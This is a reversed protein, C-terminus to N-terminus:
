ATFTGFGAVDDTYLVFACSALREAFEKKSLGTLQM